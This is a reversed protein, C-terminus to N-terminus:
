LSKRLTKDKTLPFGLPHFIKWSQQSSSRTHFTRDNGNNGTFAGNRRQSRIQCWGQRVAGRVCLHPREHRQLSKTSGNPTLNAMPSSPPLLFEVPSHFRSYGGKNRAAFLAPPASSFLDPLRILVHMSFIYPLARGHLM